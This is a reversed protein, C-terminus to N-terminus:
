PTSSTRAAFRPTHSEEIKAWAGPYLSLLGEDVVAVPLADLPPLTEMLYVADRFGMESLALHGVAAAQREADEPHFDVRSTFLLRSPADEPMAVLLGMLRALDPDIGFVEAAGRRALRFGTLTEDMWTYGAVAQVIRTEQSVDRLDQVSWPVGLDGDEEDTQWLVALGEPEPYPLPELLVGNVVAFVAANAGIGLALVLIVVGSFLPRKALARLAMETCRPM